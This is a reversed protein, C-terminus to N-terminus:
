TRLGPFRFSKKEATFDISSNQNPEATNGACPSYHIVGHRLHQQDFVIGSVRVEDPQAEDFAFRWDGHTTDVPERVAQGRQGPLSWCDHEQVQVQGIAVSRFGKAADHLVRGVHRHHHKGALIILCQGDFCHM